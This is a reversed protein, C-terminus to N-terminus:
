VRYIPYHDRSRRTRLYIDVGSIYPRVWEPPYTPVNNHQRSIIAFAPTDPPELPGFTGIMFSHFDQLPVIGTTEFVGEHTDAERVPGWFTRGRYSAGPHGSQWNIVPSVQPPTGEGSSDPILGTMTDDIYDARVGPWEDVVKYHDMGWELPRRAVWSPELAARWQALMEAQDVGGERVTVFSWRSTGQYPYVYQWVAWVQWVQLDDNLVQIPSPGLFTM